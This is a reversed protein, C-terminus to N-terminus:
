WRWTVSVPVFWTAEESAIVREWRGEFMLRRPGVRVSLGLGIGLVPRIDGAADSTTLARFGVGAITYLSSPQTPEPYLELVALAGLTALRGAGSLPNGSGAGDYIVQTDRRFFLADADFRIAVHGDPGARGLQGSIALGPSVLDAHTAFAIGARLGAFRGRASQAAAPAGPALM